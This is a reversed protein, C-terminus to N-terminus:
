RLDGECHPFSTCDYGHQITLVRGCQALPCTLGDDSYPARAGAVAALDGETLANLAERRLTLSRTM